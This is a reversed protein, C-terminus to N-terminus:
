FIFYFFFFRIAVRLLRFLIAVGGKKQNTQMSYREMGESEIQIYGYTQLHDRTSLMYICTKNKYGNLWGKDKPQFM